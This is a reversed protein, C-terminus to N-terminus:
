MLLVNSTEILREGVEVSMWLYGSIQKQDIYILDVKKLIEDLPIM